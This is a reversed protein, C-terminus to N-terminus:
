GLVALASCLDAYWEYATMPSTRDFFPAELVLRTAKGDQYFQSEDIQM